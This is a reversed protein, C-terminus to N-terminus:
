AINRLVIVPIYGDNPFRQTSGNGYLVKFEGEYDAPTDVESTIFDYRVQGIAADELTVAQLTIKVAGAPKVGMSFTVTSGSLNVPNDAADLLQRFLSDATDGEKIFHAEEPM